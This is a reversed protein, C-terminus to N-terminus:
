DFDVLNGFFQQKNTNINRLQINLQDTYTSHQRQIFYHIVSMALTATPLQSINQSWMTELMPETCTALSKACLAYM